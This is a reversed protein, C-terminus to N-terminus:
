INHIGVIQQSCMIKKYKGVNSHAQGLLDGVTDKKILEQYLELKFCRRNESSSALIRLLVSQIARSEHFHRVNSIAAPQFIKSKSVLVVHDNM